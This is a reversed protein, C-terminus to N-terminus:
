IKKLVAPRPEFIYGQSLLEDLTNEIIHEPLKLVEFLKSAEVGEGADLSQIIELVKTKYDVELNKSELFVKLSEEDLGHVQAYSKLEEESVSDAMKKIGSLISKREMLSKLVELKHKIEYNPESKKVIELNVYVEGQYEKIKGIVLVADGVEIDKVMGTNKFAKARLLGSGDDITLTAYNGDESEFKDVATAVVNVRSLKEGFQTIVYTPKMEDKSGPFFKGSVIDYIRVKKALLREVLSIVCKLNRGKAYM